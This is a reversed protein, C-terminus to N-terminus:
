LELVMQLNCRSYPTPHEEDQSLPRFGKRMYLRTAAELKNNTELWITKAGHRRATEILHDLVASGIGMGQARPDTAMKVLELRRLQGTDTQPVMLAGTGVAEADMEAIAIHGGPALITEEPARLVREDEAEIGFHEEIWRRNLRAFAQADGPQFPRITFPAEVM